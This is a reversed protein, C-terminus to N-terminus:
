LFDRFYSAHSYLLSLPYYLFQRWYTFFLHAFLEFNVIRSFIIRTLIDHGVTNWNRLHCLYKLIYIKKNKIIMNHNIFGKWQHKEKRIKRQVTCDKKQNPKFYTCQSHYGKIIHIKKRSSIVFNQSM